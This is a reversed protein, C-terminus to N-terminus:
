RLTSPVLLLYSQCVLLSTLYFFAIEEWPLVGGLKWGTIQTPDFYWVGQKVAALDALTYYTGWAATVLAFVPILGIFLSLAVIWQIFIVPLFWYLLHWSYNWRKPLGHRRSRLGVAIWLLVLGSVGAAQMPGIPTGLGTRLSPFENLLWRVSLIVHISQWVFFLYEEVPLYGVRRWIRAAPFDWIGEKVAWNDWPSTFAVVLILVIGIAQWEPSQWPLARNLILLLISVPLNFLLHFRFYTM